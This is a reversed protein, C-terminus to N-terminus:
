SSSLAPSDRPWHASASRWESKSASMVFGARLCVCRALEFQTPWLLPDLATCSWTVDAQHSSQWLKHRAATLHWVTWTNFPGFPYVALLIPFWIRRQSFSPPAPLSPYPSRKIPIHVAPFDYTHLATCCMMCSKFHMSLKLHLQWRWHKQWCHLPADSTFLIKMSFLGRKMRARMRENNKQQQNKEM